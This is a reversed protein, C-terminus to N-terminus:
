FTKALDDERIGGGNEDHHGDENEDLRPTGEGIM